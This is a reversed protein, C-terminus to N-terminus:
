KASNLKEFLNILRNPFKMCPVNKFDTGPLNLNWLKNNVNIQIIAVSIEWMKASTTREWCEVILRVVREYVGKRLNIKDKEGLSTSFPPTLCNKPPNITKYRQYDYTAM